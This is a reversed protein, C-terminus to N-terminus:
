PAFTIPKTIFGYRTQIRVLYITGNDVGPNGITILSKGVPMIKKAIHKIVRGQVDCIEIAVATNEALNLELTAQQQAPNPYITATVNDKELPNTGAFWQSINVNDIYVPNGANSIVDFRFIANKVTDYGLAAFSSVGLQKWQTKGTPVLDSSCV